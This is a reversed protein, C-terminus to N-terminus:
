ICNLTIFIAFKLSFQLWYYDDIADYICIRYFWQVYKLITLEIGNMGQRQNKLYDTMEFKLLSNATKDLYNDLDDKSNM